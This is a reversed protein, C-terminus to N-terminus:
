LVKRTINCSKIANYGGRLETLSHQIEDVIEDILYHNDTEIGIKALVEIKM